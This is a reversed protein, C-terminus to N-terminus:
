FVICCGVRLPFGVGGVKRLAMLVRSRDGVKEEDDESITNPGAFDIDLSPVPGATPELEFLSSNSSDDGIRSNTDFAVIPTPEVTETPPSTVIKTAEIVPM